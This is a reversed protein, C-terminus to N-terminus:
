WDEMWVDMWGVMCGGMWGGHMLGDMWGGDMMGGGTRDEMWGGVLRWGDVWGRYMMLGHGGVGEWVGDETLGDQM